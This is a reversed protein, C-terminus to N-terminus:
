PADPSTNTRRGYRLWPLWAITEGKKGSLMEKAWARDVRAKSSYRGRRSWLETEIQGDGFIGPVTLTERFRGSVVDAVAQNLQSFEADANSGCADCGCDPFFTTYWRGFRAALGPFDTFTFTMPARFDGRPTLRVSQRAMQRVELEPDLGYGELRELEFSVELRDILELTAKHLPRFREADTVRSYADEPPGDPGWHDRNM